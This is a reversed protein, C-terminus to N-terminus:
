APTSTVRSTAAPPCPSKQDTSITYAAEIAGRPRSARAMETTSAPGIRAPATPSGSPVARDSGSPQRTTTPATAIAIIAPAGASGLNRGAAGTAGAGGAAPTRSSLARRTSAAASNPASASTACKATNVNTEGSAVSLHLKASPETPASSRTNPIAPATPSATDPKTPSRYGRPDSITVTAASASPKVTSAAAPAYPPTTTTATPAQPRSSPSSGGSSCFATIPAADGDYLSEAPAIRTAM